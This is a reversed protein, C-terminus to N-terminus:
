LATSREVFVLRLQDTLTLLHAIQHWKTFYRASVMSGRCDIISVFPCEFLQQKHRRITIGFVDESLENVLDVFGVEGASTRFSCNASNRLFGAIFGDRHTETTSV